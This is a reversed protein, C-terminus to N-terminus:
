SQGMLIFAGWDAPDPYVEMTDLMAQRLAQAKDPEEQLKAYFQEMLEATSFDAVPWLSSLVSPVGAAFFSRSLGVVGDGTIAGRATDCASLVALDARLRLDMIEEATLFGDGGEATLALSSNLGHQEDFLGHTAFHLIPSTLMEQSVKGENARKGILPQTQLLPSIQRAEFESGPLPSLQQPAQGPIAPLHPMIPNGVVLAQAIDSAALRTSQAVEKKKETLALAKISTIIRPTHHEVLFEGQQDQLAAFPVMLLAKHPVLVVTEEPNEPLADAIPEILLRHFEQLPAYNKRAVAEPEPLRSAVLEAQATNFAFGGRTNGRSSIQGRQQAVWQALPQELRDLDQQHFTVEGSPRIVWTLLREPATSDPANSIEVYTQTLPHIVAYQVITAAEHRAIKRIKRLDPPASIEHHSDHGQLVEHHRHNAVLRQALLENFARARSQESVVLAEEFRGQAILTEQLRDYLTVHADFLTVKQQDWLGHRLNEFAAIAGKFKAEAPKFKGQLLYVEGQQRQLMIGTMANGMPQAPDAVIEYHALAQEFAGAQVYTQGLMLHLRALLPSPQGQRIAGVLIRKAKDLQGQKLAIQGLQLRASMQGRVDEIALSQDLAETYAQESDEWREMEQYIWGLRQLVRSQGLADDIEGYAAVADRYHAESTRMQSLDWNVDGLLQLAQAQDIADGPLQIATKAVALADAYRGLSRHLQGLAVQYRRQEHPRAKSLRVEAENLQTEAEPFQGSEGWIQAQTLAQHVLLESALPGQADLQQLLGQAASLQGLYVNTLALDLLISQLRPRDQASAARALELQLVERAKRFNGARLLLQGQGYEAEDKARTRGYSILENGDGPVLGPELGLELGLELGPPLIVQVQSSSAEAAIAGADLAALLPAALGLLALGLLNANWDRLLQM